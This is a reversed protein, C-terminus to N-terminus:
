EGSRLGGQLLGFLVQRQNPLSWPFFVDFRRAGLMLRGFLEIVRAEIELQVTAEM